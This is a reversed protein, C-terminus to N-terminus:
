VITAYAVLAISISSSAPNGVNGPILSLQSALASVPATARDVTDTGLLTQASNRAATHGRIKAVSISERSIRMVCSDCICM